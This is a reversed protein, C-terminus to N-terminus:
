VFQIHLTYTWTRDVLFGINGSTCLLSSFAGKRSNLTYTDQCKTQCRAGKLGLIKLSIRLSCEVYVPSRTANSRFVMFGMYQFTCRRLGFGHVM